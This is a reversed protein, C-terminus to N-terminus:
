GSQGRPTIAALLEASTFPKQLVASAGIRAAMSVADSASMYAGGGSMAVIWTGPRHERAVRILQVGDVDPMFMDTVIVDFPTEKIRRLALQGDLICTVQHGAHQLIERIFTAIVPEDDIVLVSM